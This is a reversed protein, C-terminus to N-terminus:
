QLKSMYERLQTVFERESSNNNPYSIIIKTIEDIVDQNWGLKKASSSIDKQFKKIQFPCNPISKYFYGLAYMEIANEYKGEKKLIRAQYFRIEPDPLKRRLLLQHLYGWAKDYQKAKIYLNALDIDQSSQCPPNSVVFAYEYEEIASELDGDSKYKVRAANVRSLLQNQYELEEQRQRYGPDIEELLTKVEQQTIPKSEQKKKMFDFLGM